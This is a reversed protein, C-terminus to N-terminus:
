QAKQSTRHHGYTRMQVLALVDSLSLYSECARESVSREDGSAEGEECRGGGGGGGGGM